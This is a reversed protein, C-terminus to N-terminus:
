DNGNEAAETLKDLELIKRYTAIEKEKIEAENDLKEIFVLNLLEDFREKADSKEARIKLPLRGNLLAYYENIIEAKESSDLVIHNDAIKQYEELDILRNHNHERVTNLLLSIYLCFEQGPETGLIYNITDKQAKAINLDINIYENSFIDQAENEEKVAENYDFAVDSLFFLAEETLGTYNCISSIDIDTSKVDTLGLLYDTSVNFSSSFRKIAEITLKRDGNYYKTVTSTDIGLKLAIQERTLGSDDILGRIRITTIDKKTTKDSM